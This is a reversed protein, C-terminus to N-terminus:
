SHELIVIRKDLILNGLKVKYLSKVTNDVAKVNWM